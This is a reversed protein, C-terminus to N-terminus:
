FIKTLYSPRYTAFLQHFLQLGRTDCWSYLMLSGRNHYPPPQWNCLQPIQVLHLAFQILGVIMAYQLMVRDECSCPKHTMLSKYEHLIIIWLMCTFEALPVNFAFIFLMNKLQNKALVILPSLNWQVPTPHAQGFSFLGCTCSMRAVRPPFSPLVIKM